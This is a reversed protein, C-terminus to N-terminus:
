QPQTDQCPCGKASPVRGSCMELGESFSNNLPLLVQPIVQGLPRVGGSLNEIPELDAPVKQYFYLPSIGSYYGCGRCEGGKLHQPGGYVQLFDPISGEWIVELYPRWGRWWKSIGQHRGEEIM